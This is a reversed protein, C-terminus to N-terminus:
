RVVLLYIFGGINVFMEDEEWNYCYCGGDELLFCDIWMNEFGARSKGEWYVFRLKDGKELVIM